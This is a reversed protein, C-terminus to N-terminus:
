REVARLLAQANKHDPDHQMLRRVGEATGAADGMIALLEARRAAQQELWAPDPRWTTPDPRVGGGGSLLPCGLPHTDTDTRKEAAPCQRVHGIMDPKM